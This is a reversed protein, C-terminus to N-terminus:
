KNTRYAKIFLAALNKHPPVYDDFLAKQSGGFQANLKSWIEPWLIDKGQLLYANVMRILPGNISGSGIQKTSVIQADPSSKIVQALNNFGGCAGLIVIKHYNNIHDLTSALHYSHGRHIIISPHINNANLYDQLHNQAFEDNPEDLPVNAYIVVPKGSTSRITVWEPNRTIKWGAGSFHGLYSQFVGKGDKDGFFFVQQVIQGSDNLLRNYPMVDIPPIGLQEVIETSTATLMTNLINYVKYGQTKPEFSNMQTKIEEKVFGILKADQISGLSNAVDTADELNQETTKELGQAFKKMLAVRNVEPMTNLFENITNFNASLRIFTRFKDYQLQELFESGTKPKMKTIMRKCIGLYSSTYLEDAGFLLMYYLETANFTNVLKFRTADSANHLENIVSVRTSVVHSLEREVIKRRDSNANDQRIAVLNKIYNEEDNIITNIEKITIKNNVLKDVFYIGKLPSKTNDAIDIIAKVYESTNRRVIAREAATCTAYNLIMKPDTPAIKEIVLDELKTNNLKKLKRVVLEPNTEIVGGILIASAEKNDSILHAMNYAMTTTNNQILEVLTNNRKAKIIDATLNFLKDYYSVDFDGDDIDQNFTKLNTLVQALYIRKSSDTKENIEIDDITENCTSFLLDAMQMSLEPKNEIDFLTDILGDTVDAKRLEKEIKYILQMRGAPIFSRNMKNYGSTQAYNIMFGVVLLLTFLIKKIM